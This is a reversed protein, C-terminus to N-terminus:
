FFSLGILSCSKGCIESASPWSLTWNVKTPKNEPSVIAAFKDLASGPALFLFFLRKCFCGTRERERERGKGKGRGRGRGVGRGREREREREKEKERERERKRERIVDSCGRPKGAALGAYRKVHEFGKAPNLSKVKWFLM